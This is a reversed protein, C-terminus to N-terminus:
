RRALFCIISVCALTVLGATGCTIGSRICQNMRICGGSQMPGDKSSYHLMPIAAKRSCSRMTIGHGRQIFIKRPPLSTSTALSHQQCAKRLSGNAMDALRKLWELKYRFKPGPQPNGNPLHICGILMGNVAAEIYRSETDEPDGPLTDRTLVPKSERSLIAVGNWTKQGRWISHYGAKEIVRAPFDADTSKLEQLCVVDPRSTKLWSLLLPLRHNVNNINFTAIKM